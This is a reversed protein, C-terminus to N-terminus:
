DFTCNICPEGPVVVKNPCHDCCCHHTAKVVPKAKAKDLKRKLMEDRSVFQLVQGM